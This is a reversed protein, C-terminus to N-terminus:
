ENNEVRLLQYNLVTVEGVGKEKRLLEKEVAKIADFTTLPESRKLYGNGFGDRHAFSFFYYYTKNAM